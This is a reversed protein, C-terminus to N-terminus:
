KLARLTIDPLSELALRKASEEIHTYHASIAPSDHGILDQVIAPSIGANKMLSTATHRLAHFSLANFRRRANRGKGHGVHTRRSALGAAVLIQYFQNSLTGTRGVTFARPFIPADPDDSAPLSELYKHLPLVLPVLLRRNTKRSVFSLEGRDLDVNRWTLGAVDGLRQGTYLGFLVLGKWEDQAERYIRALEAQTFARRLQQQATSRSPKVAAAVNTLCMGAGVADKLAMRVVKVATNATSSTLQETLQDRFALVDRVTLASVDLDARANLSVIFQDSIRKYRDATSPATERSKAKSWSEFWSRITSGPLSDGPNVMAYIEGIVKRAQSETLKSHAAQEWKRAIELARRRNTEKTNRQIQKLRGGHPVSFCAYWYRSQSFSRVSAM